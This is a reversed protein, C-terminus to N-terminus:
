WALGGPQVFKCPLPRRVNQWSLIEPGTETTGCAAGADRKTAVKRMEMTWKSDGGDHLTLTDVIGCAGDPGQRSVWRHPPTAISLDFTRTYRNTTVLCTDPVIASTTLFVQQFTCEMRNGAADRDCEAGEFELDEPRTANALFPIIVRRPSPAPSQAFPPQHWVGFALIAAAVM